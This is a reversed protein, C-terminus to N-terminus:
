MRESATPVWENRKSNAGRGQKDDRVRNDNEGDVCFVVFVDLRKDVAGCQGSGSGGRMTEVDGERESSHQKTKQVIDSGHWTNM